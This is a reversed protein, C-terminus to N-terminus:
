ITKKGNDKTIVDYAAYLIGITPDLSEIYQETQKVEIKEIVSSIGAGKYTQQAVGTDQISSEALGRSNATVFKSPDTTLLGVAIDFGYHFPAMGDHTDDMNNLVEKISVVPHKRTAIIYIEYIIFIVMIIKIFVSFFAGYATKFHAKGKFTIQVSEGFLDQSKFFSFAKSAFTNNEHSGLARLFNKRHKGGGNVM